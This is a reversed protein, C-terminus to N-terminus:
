VLPMVATNLPPAGAGAMPQILRELATSTMTVNDATSIREVQYSSSISWNEIIVKDATGRVSM